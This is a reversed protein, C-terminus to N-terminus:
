TEEGLERRLRGLARHARALATGLPVGLLEAVERFPLESYYRLVIIERDLMPLRALAAALRRREDGDAVCDAPGDAALVSRGADADVDEWSAVPSRVQRRGRDRALNAAIRFLWSEFRGTHEYEEIAQVVRVFTDQLLDEAAERSGTLRYLLGYVRDSYMEVLRSLATPDRQRARRLLDDLVAADM